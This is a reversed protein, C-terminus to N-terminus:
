HTVAGLWDSDLTLGFKLDCSAESESLVGRGARNAIGSSASTDRISVVVVSSVLEISAYIPGVSLSLFFTMELRTVSAAILSSTSNIARDM